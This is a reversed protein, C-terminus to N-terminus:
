KESAILCADLLPLSIKRLVVQFLNAPEAVKKASTSQLCTGRSHYINIMTPTM